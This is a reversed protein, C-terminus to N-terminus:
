SEGSLNIRYQNKKVTGFFAPPLIASFKRTNNTIRGFGENELNKHGLSSPSPVKIEFPM